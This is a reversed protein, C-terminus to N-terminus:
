EAVDLWYVRTEGYDKPALVGYGEPWVPEPERSAREVAIVADTSLRPRLLVLLAIVADNGLDYPPDIFVLDWTNASAGVYGAASSRHVRIACVPVAPSVLATNKTMVRVAKDSNDVLDVTSAGRSAAELGVAGSGAYLDLVRSGAVTMLADFRSFVAERVRDATPRTGTAPVTLSRGGAAGSIIRTM